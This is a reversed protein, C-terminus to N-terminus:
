LVPQIPSDCRDRASRLGAERSLRALTDGAGQGTLALLTRDVGTDPHEASQNLGKYANPKV